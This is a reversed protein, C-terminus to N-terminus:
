LVAGGFTQQFDGWCVTSRLLNVVITDPELLIRDMGRAAVHIKRAM